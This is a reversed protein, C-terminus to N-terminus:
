SAIEPEGEIRRTVIAVVKDGDGPNRLMTLAAVFWGEQGYAHLVRAMENADNASVLHHEYKM